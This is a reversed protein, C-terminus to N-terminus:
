SDSFEPREVRSSQQVLIDIKGDQQTTGLSRLEVLLPLWLFALSESHILKFSANLLPARTLKEDTHSAIFDNLEVCGFINGDFFLSSSFFFAGTSMNVLCESALKSTASNGYVKIKNAFVHEIAFKLSIRRMRECSLHSDRCRSLAM